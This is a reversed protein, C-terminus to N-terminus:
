KLRLVQNVRIFNANTVEPNLALLKAVSMGYRRAIKSITDGGQVRYSEGVAVKENVMQDTVTVLYEAGKTLGCMAQGQKTIRFSGIYELKGTTDNYRYFNAFKGANEAGLNVHLNVVMDFSDHSVMSIKKTAVAGNSKEAVQSAPVNFQGDRVSLNLGKAAAQRTVNSSSISFAVGDGTHLALTTKGKQLKDMSAAPVKIDNGAVVDVNSGAAASDLKASVENWDVDVAAASGGQAGSNDDDDEDDASPAPTPTPTAPTPTPTPDPTPTPIPSPTPAETTYSVKATPLQMALVEDAIDEGLYFGLHAPQNYSTNQNAVANRYVPDHMLTYIMYDTDETTVYIRLENDDDSRVLLEERWDGLIDATLCPNNKTSNNTKTGECVKLTNLENNEWDYKYIAAQGEGASPNEGDMLESLLDGDWYMVFNTSFNYPKSYAVVDGYFNYIAGPVDGATESSPRNAWYEFGASPTINAAVGRGIDARGLWNAAIRSGNSANSLHYNITSDKEEEPAFVYLQQTDPSMASLHIADGHGSYDQGNTGDKVWLVTGDHDIAISGMVIEDFGDNDLDGTAVNHNGKGANSTGTEALFTWETQIKGDRLTYAAVTTKAYYGRNFLVAPITETCSADNQDVPLYAVAINYRASRNGGDNKGGSTGWDTYEGTKFVYDITDIEEGTEGNFVTIYENTNASVHGNSNVNSGPVVSKDGIYSVITSEDTMDFVGDANPKYSTTGDSTKLLLEAKGDEDLDYLMFQNFHAGSPMELGMNLRWLPTGDLEYIDFITPSSYTKAVGSDFANSPYWKVIIEYEGDGDVDAVGADNLTYSALTGHGDDQPEPKQLPISLYDGSTAAYGDSTLSGGDIIIEISYVDGVKGAADFYNTKDTIPNENVKAGNRYVNFQVDKGYESVLLRWSVFIGGDKEVAYVGRDLYEMSRTYGNYNDQSTFYSIRYYVDYTYKDTDEGAVHQENVLEISSSLASKGEEPVVNAGYVYIGEETANFERIPQWEDIPMTDTTGNNMFVTVRDPFEPLAEGFNLELTNPNHAYIPYPLVSYNMNFSVELKFPNNLGELVLPATWVYDGNNDKDFAPTPTWEGVKLVKQTAADGGLTVTVEEPFVYGADWDAKAISVDDPQEVAVVDAETFKDYDIVINDIGMSASCKGSTLRDLHILLTNIGNAETAIPIDQASFTKAADEKDTVTIAATHALYDFSLNVTYWKNQAGLGTNVADGEAISGDFEPQTTSPSSLSCKTYYKIQYNDVDAFRLTFYSNWNSPSIFMLEGSSNSATSIPMWDFSVTASKIIGSELDKRSGREGSQNSASALMYSNGATDKAQSLGVVGTYSSSELQRGWAVTDWVGLAFDEYYDHSTDPEGAYTMTFSAKLAKPNAHGEPAVVDASWIYNGRVASDFAPEAAWSAADIAVEVQTTGDELTATATTPFAFGADWEAKTLTVAPLEAISAIATLDVENNEEYSMAFNDIGIDTTFTKGSGLGGAGFFAFQNVKSVNAPLAVGAALKTGDITIDATGTKGATFDFEIEVAIKGGNAVKVGLAQKTDFSDTYYYLDTTTGATRINGYCLSLVETGDQRLSAAIGADVSKDATLSTTYLQFCVKATKMRPLDGLEKVASKTSCKEKSLRLYNNGGEDAVSIGDALDGTMEWAAGDEFDSWIMWGESANGSSATNGSVTTGEEAHVTAVSVPSALMSFTLLYALTRKWERKLRM